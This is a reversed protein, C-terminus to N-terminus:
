ADGKEDEAVYGRQIMEGDVWVRVSKDKVDDLLEMVQKWDDVIYEDGSGDPWDRNVIHVRM